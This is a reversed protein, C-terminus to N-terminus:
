CLLIDVFVVDLVASCADVSDPPVWGPAASALSAPAFSV